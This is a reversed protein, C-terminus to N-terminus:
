SSVLSVLLWLSVLQYLSMLQCLSVLPCPERPALPERATLPERPALPERASSSVTLLEARSGAGSATLLGQEHAAARTESATRM